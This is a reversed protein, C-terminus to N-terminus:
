QRGPDGRFGWAWFGCAILTPLVVCTQLLFAIVDNSRQGTYALGTVGLFSAILTVLWNAWAPIAIALTLRRLGRESYHLFQFTWAAAILWLGGLLGNLHSSLALHSNGVRFKGTLAAAAFLGTVMGVFFLLAGAMALRKQIVTDNM